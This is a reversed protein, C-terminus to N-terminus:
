AHACRFRAIRGGRSGISGANGHLYLVTFGGAPVPALSWALLDLGDTSRYRVESVDAAGASIRDPPTTDPVFIIRRQLAYLAGCFVAYISAAALLLIVFTRM